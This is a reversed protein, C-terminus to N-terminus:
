TKVDFSLENAKADHSSGHKIQPFTAVNHCSQFVRGFYSSSMRAPFHKYVHLAVSFNRNQRFFDPARLM